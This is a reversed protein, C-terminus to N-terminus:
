GGSVLVGDHEYALRQPDVVHFWSDNYTFNRMFNEFTYIKKMPTIQKYDYVEIKAMRENKILEVVQAIMNEKTKHKYLINKAIVM